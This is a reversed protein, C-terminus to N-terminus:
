VNCDYQIYSVYIICIIWCGSQLREAQNFFAKLCRWAAVEKARKAAKFLQRPRLPPHRPKKGHKQWLLNVPKSLFGVNSMAFHGVQRKQELTLVNKQQRLENKCGISSSTTTWVSSLLDARLWGRVQWLEAVKPSHHLQLAKAAIAVTAVAMWFPPGWRKLFRSTSFFHSQVDQLFFCHFNDHGYKLVTVILMLLTMQQADWQFFRTRNGTEFPRDKWTSAGLGQSWRKKGECVASPDVKSHKMSAKSSRPKPFGGNPRGPLLQPCVTLKKKKKKLVKKM